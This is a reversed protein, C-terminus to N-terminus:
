GGQAMVPQAALRGDRHAKLFRACFEDRGALAEAALLAAILDRDLPDVIAADLGAGVAMVALTRNLLKREPLGYSVNSVGIITHIDPFRQRIGHIADLLAKGSDPQASIPFVLPDLYIDDARMGDNLLRTVLCEAIALKDGISRAMGRTDDACLAIVKPHFERLVPVLEGYRKTEASISNLIAQRGNLLRLAALAAAQSPTDVSIPVDVVELVREIAWPLLEMERGIVAAANVDIAAAGAEVQKLAEQQFFKDNGAVLAAHVTKRTSNLREGIIFM